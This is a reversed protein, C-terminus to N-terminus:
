PTEKIVEANITTWDETSCRVQGMAVLRAAYASTSKIETVYEIRVKVRYKEAVHATNTM